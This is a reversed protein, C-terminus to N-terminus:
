RPFSVGLQHSTTGIALTRFSTAIRTRPMSALDTRISVLSHWAHRSCYNRGELRVACRRHREQIRIYAHLSLRMRFLFLIRIGDISPPIM